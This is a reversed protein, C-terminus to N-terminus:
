TTGRPFFPDWAEPAVALFAEVRAGVLEPPLGSEAGDVIRLQPTLAGPPDAQWGAGDPELASLEVALPRLDPRRLVPRSVFMVWTEYRLELRYRRGQVLLIRLRETSNNVAMPHVAETWAQTFRHTTRAAWQEPVTVVALDVRDHEEIGVVGKGIADISMGLHADEREWLARHRDPHDLLDTFRPLLERYLLATTDTYSGTLGTPGLPSHEPDEYAALAMAIRAADRNTFTGFDGARAVDVILERRALAAPPDILAFASALGDQDFHNNSVVDVGDFWEPRELAHFAIQASLDDRLEPPTPSGPWHSLTLRTSASAAGDVVVNPTDGLEEYAVFRLPLV